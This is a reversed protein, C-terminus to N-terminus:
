QGPKTSCYNEIGACEEEPSNELHYPQLDELSYMIDLDCTLDDNM